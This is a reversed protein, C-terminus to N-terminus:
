GDSSQVSGFTLCLRPEPNGTPAAPPPPVAGPGNFPVYRTHVRDDRQWPTLLDVPCPDVVLSPEPPTTLGYARREPALERHLGRTFASTIVPGWDQRVWPVGHVTAALPGAAETPESLVLDPRWREVLHLTGPLSHAALRGFGRGSRELIADVAEEGEGDPYPVPRGRRDFGIMERLSVPASAATVPLGTAKLPEVLNEPAVALVEHGRVRLAWSLPALQFFHSIPPAATILIRM